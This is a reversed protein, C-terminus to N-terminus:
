PRSNNIEEFKDLVETLFEEYNESSLIGDPALEDARKRVEVWESDLDRTEKNKTKYITKHIEM